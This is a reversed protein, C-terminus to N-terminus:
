SPRTIHESEDFSRRKCYICVFATRIKYMQNVSLVMFHLQRVDAMVRVALFIIYNDLTSKEVIMSEYKWWAIIAIVNYLPELSVM